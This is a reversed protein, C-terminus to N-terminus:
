TAGVRLDVAWRYVEGPRLTLDPFGPHNPSDPWAQPELCIAAHRPLDGAGHNSTYVQLGVQDTRVELRRGSVPDVLVAAPRGDAPDLVLCHDIGGTPDLEPGGLLAAVDVGGRLDFPTGDVRRLEGTPLQEDDTVVWREAAVSLRHGRLRALAADPDGTGALNWYGHHTVGVVTTRDTRAEVEVRLGDARLTYSAQLELRGPYGQDGDPSVHGLRVSACGTATDAGADLVRWVHRDIGVPGGHLQHRGENADLPVRRGGLPVNAGGVRNALRGVISGLHPNAVPDAYRALDPRGAGDRLSAVVDDIRGDRDPVRLGVLHAGYTLVEATLDGAALAVLEAGEVGGAVALRTREVSAPTTM